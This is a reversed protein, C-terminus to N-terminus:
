HVYYENAMQQLQQKQLKRTKKVYKTCITAPTAHGKEVTRVAVRGGERNGGEGKVNNVWFHVFDTRLNNGM